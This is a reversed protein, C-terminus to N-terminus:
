RSTPLATAQHDDQAADVTPTAAAGPQDLLRDLKMNELDQVTTRVATTSQPQRDIL